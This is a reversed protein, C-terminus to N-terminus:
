SSHGSVLSLLYTPPENPLAPGRVGPCVPLSSPTLDQVRFGKPGQAANGPLQLGYGGPLHPLPGPTM